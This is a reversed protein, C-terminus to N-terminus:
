PLVRWVRRADDERAFVALADDADRILACSGRCHQRVVTVFWQDLGHDVFAHAIVPSVMAGQPSGLEDAVMGGPPQVGANLRRAILRLRKQDAIRESLVALMEAHPRTDFFTALDMDLLWNVPESRVEHNLQRLADHGSRGPRFGYSTDICVPADIAELLRRVMEQVINDEVGSIGLPRMRGDEKPIEVRRVPKPRYAMQHRRRHLDQMNAQLDQGDMAQTVGDVGVAKKADLSECCARLHDVTCHHMLSPYRTQPEQRARRAIREVGTTTERGGRPTTSTAM